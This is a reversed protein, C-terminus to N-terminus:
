IAIGHLRLSVPYRVIAIMAIRFRELTKAGTVYTIYKYQLEM